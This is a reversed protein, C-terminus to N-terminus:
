GHQGGRWGWQQQRAAWCPGGAVAPGVRAGSPSRWCPQPQNLNTKWLPHKSRTGFPATTRRPEACLRHRSSSCVSRGSSRPKHFSTLHLLAHKDRSEVHKHM